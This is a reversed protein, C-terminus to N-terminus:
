DTVESVQVDPALIYSDGEKFFFGLELFEKLPAAIRLNPTKPDLGRRVLEAKVDAFTRARDARDQWFDGAMLRAVKGKISSDDLPLVKKTITVEIAPKEMALRILVPDRRIVALVDATIQDAYKLVQAPPIAPNDPQNGNASDDMPIPNVERSPFLFPVNGLKRRLETRLSDMETRLANVTQNLMEVTNVLTEAQEKYMEDDEVQAIAVPKVRALEYPNMKGQAVARAHPPEMWVPQVYVKRIESGNAAFFQGLQLTAVDGARPRKMGEPMNALARKIENAERQVGILWVACSRLLLKAVGAIDQSDIWIFNKLAAGERALSEAVAKVPTNRSEPIFKWAEPIVTIVNQAHAHIWELTSAIVLMQLEKPYATLDMVALSGGMIQGHYRPGIEVRDSKPLSSILPVVIKLYEVLVMYMDKSMSNRTEEGLKAARRQVDALTRAGECARIIWPQKFDMGQKMTSELISQVFQWDARERFFAPIKRGALSGEGRKTLFAIAPLGSRRILAELTTTKGSEQTQGTVVMHRVPIEVPDGSGVAYGLHVTHSM